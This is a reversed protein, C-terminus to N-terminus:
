QIEIFIDRESLQKLFLKRKLKYIETRFGKVDIIVRRDDLGTFEFDAEYTIPRHKLGERKFSDQLLYTPHIKLDRIKGALLMPKVNNAYYAMERKSDFKIGDM